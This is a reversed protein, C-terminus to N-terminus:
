GQQAKEYESLAEDGSLAAQQGQQQAQLQAAQAAAPSMAGGGGRGQMSALILPLAIGAIGGLGAGGATNGQTGGALGGLAMGGGAMLAIKALPSMQSPDMGMMEFLPDAVAGVRDLTGFLEQGRQGAQLAEQVQPISFVDRLAQERQRDGEAKIRDNVAGIGAGAVAPAAEVGLLGLGLKSKFPNSFYADDVKRITNGLGPLVDSKSGLRSGAAALNPLQFGGGSLGKGVTQGRVLPSLFGGVTGLQRLNGGTDYGALGAASDGAYGLGGGIMSRLGAARANVGMRPMYRGFAAGGLGALTKTGWHADDDVAGMGTMGGLASRGAQGWFGGLDNGMAKQAGQSLARGKTSDFLRNAFGAMGGRGSVGGANGVANAVPKMARAADDGFGLVYKGGGLLAKGVNLLPNAQKELVEAMKDLGERLEEAYDEGMYEAVKEVGDSLQSASIGANVAQAVFGTQYPTLGLDEGSKHWEDVVFPGTSQRVPKPQAPPRPPGVFPLERGYRFTPQPKAVPKPSPKPAPKPAVTTKKASQLQSIYALRRRQAAERRAAMDYEATDWPNKKPATPAPPKAVPKAPRNMTHRRFYNGHTGQGVQPTYDGSNKLLPEVNANHVMPPAVGYAGGTGFQGGYGGYGGQGGAGGGFMSSMLNYGKNALYGGGGLLTAGALTSRVPMKRAVSKAAGMGSQLAPKGYHRAARFKNVASTFPKALYKAGQSVGKILPAYAEKDLGLAAFANKVAEPNSFQATKMYKSVSDWAESGTAASKDDVKYTLASEGVASRSDTSNDQAASKKKKKRAFEEREEDTIKEFSFGPKKSMQRAKMLMFDRDEEGLKTAGGQFKQLAQQIGNNDALSFNPSAGQSYRNPMAAGINLHPMAQYGTYSPAYNSFNPFGGLKGGIASSGMARKEYNDSM